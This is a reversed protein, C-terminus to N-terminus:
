TDRIEKDNAKGFCFAAFDLAMLASLLGFIYALIKEEQNPENQRYPGIYLYTALTFAAVGFKLLYQM